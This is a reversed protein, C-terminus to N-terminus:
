GPRKSSKSKGGTGQKTNFSHREAGGGAGYSPGNEEM